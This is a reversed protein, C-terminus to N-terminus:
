FQHRVGVSFYRGVAGVYDAPNYGVAGYTLPDFPATKDFLNRITGFIETKPTAKCRVTLDM